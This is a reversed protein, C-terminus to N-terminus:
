IIHKPLYDHALGLFTYFPAPYQHKYQRSCRICICATHQSCQQSFPFKLMAFELLCVVKLNYCRIALIPVEHLDTQFWKQVCGKDQAMEKLLDSPKMQSIRTLWEFLGGVAGTM